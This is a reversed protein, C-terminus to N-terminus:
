NSIFVYRIRKLFDKVSKILQYLALRDYKKIVSKIKESVSKGRVGKILLKIQHPCDIRDDLRKKEIKILNNYLGELDGLYNAFFKSATPQNSIPLSVLFNMWILKTVDVYTLKTPPEITTLSILSKGENVYEVFTDFGIEFVLLHDKVFPVLKSQNPIKSLLCFFRHYLNPNNERLRSRWDFASSNVKVIDKVIGHEKQFLIISEGTKMRPDTTPFSKYYGTSLHKNADEISLPSPNIVGSKKNSPEPPQYIGSEYEINLEDRSLFVVYPVQVSQRTAVLLDPHVVLFSYCTSSYDKSEFLEESTPGGADKYMNAFTNSSGWRSKTINIKRHSIFYTKGKNRVVRIVVGEFVQRIIVKEPDFSHLTGEDDKINIRKDIISISDLTAIPTHGYSTAVIKNLETDILVGRVKALKGTASDGSYHVLVLHDQIDEIEWGECSEIGLEKLAPLLTAKFADGYQHVTTVKLIGNEKRISVYSM